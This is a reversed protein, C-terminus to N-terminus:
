IFTTRGFGSWGSRSRRRHIYNNHRLYCCVVCISNYFSINMIHVEYACNSCKVLMDCMQADLQMDEQMFNM